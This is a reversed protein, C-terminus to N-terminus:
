ACRFLAPWDHALRRWLEPLAGSHVGLFRFATRWITRDQCVEKIPPLALVSEPADRSPRDTARFLMRTGVIGPHAVLPAAVASANLVDAGADMSLSLGLANGLDVVFHLARRVDNVPTANPHPDGGSQGRDKSIEIAAGELDPVQHANLAVV